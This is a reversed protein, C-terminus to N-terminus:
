HQFVKLDPLSKSHVQNIKNFQIDFCIFTCKLSYSPFIFFTTLIIKLNNSQGLKKIQFHGIVDASKICIRFVTFSKSIQSGCIFSRKEPKSVKAALRYNFRIKILKQFIKTYEVESQLWFHYIVIKFRKKIFKLFYNM